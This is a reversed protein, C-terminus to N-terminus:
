GLKLAVEFAVPIYVKVGFGSWQLGLVVRMLNSQNLDFGM